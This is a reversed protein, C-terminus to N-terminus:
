QQHVAANKGCPHGRGHEGGGGRIKHAIRLGDFGGADIAAAVIKSRRLGRKAAHQLDIASQEADVRYGDALGQHFQRHLDAVLAAKIFGGTQEVAGLGNDLTREARVGAGLESRIHRQVGGVLAIKGLRQGIGMLGTHLAASLELGGAAAALDAGTKGTQRDGAAALQGMRQTDLRLHRQPQAIQGIGLGGRFFRQPDDIQFRPQSQPPAGIDQGQHRFHIFPAAADARRLAIIEVGYDQPLFQEAIGRREGHRMQHRPTKIGFLFQIGLRDLM